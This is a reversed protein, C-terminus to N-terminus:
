RLEATNPLLPHLQRDSVDRMETDLNAPCSNLSIKARLNWEVFSNRPINAAAFIRDECCM